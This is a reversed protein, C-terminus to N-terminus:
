KVLAKEPSIEFEYHRSNVTGCSLTYMISGPVITIETVVRESQNEDTVLYVRDGFDFKTSIMM